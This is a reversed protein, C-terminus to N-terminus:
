YYPTDVKFFVGWTHLLIQKAVEKLSESIKKNLNDL